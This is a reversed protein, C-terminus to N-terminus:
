NMMTEFSVIPFQFRAQQTTFKLKDIRPKTTLKVPNEDDGSPETIFYVKSELQGGIPKEAYENHNVHFAGAKYVGAIPNMVVIIRKFPNNVDEYVMQHPPLVPTGEKIKEYLRDSDDIDSNFSPNSNPSKLYIGPLEMGLKVDPKFNMEIYFMGMVREIPQKQLQLASVLIFLIFTAVLANSIVDLMSLGIPSVTYKKKFIKIKGM